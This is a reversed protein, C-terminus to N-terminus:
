DDAAMEERYAWQGVDEYEEAEDDFEGVAPEIGISQLTNRFIERGPPAPKGMAEGILGLMPSSDPGSFWPM